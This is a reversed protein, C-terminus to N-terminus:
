ITGVRPTFEPLAIQAYEVADDYIDTIQKDNITLNIYESFNPSAM